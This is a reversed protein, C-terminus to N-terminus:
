SAGKKVSVRLVGAANIREALRQAAGRRRLRAAELASRWDAATITPFLPKM